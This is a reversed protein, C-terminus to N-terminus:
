EAEQGPAVYQGYSGDPTVLEVTVQNPLCIIMNGLVRSDMNEMTVEGQLVCDQNDCTASEMYVSSPTVHIVNEAGSPQTIRYNAEEAVLPIPQYATGAVTVLLYAWPTSETPHASTGGQAAETSQAPDSGQAPTTSQTPNDGQAAETSQAAETPQAPDATLTPATEDPLAGGGLGVAALIAVLVVLAALAALILANKNRM